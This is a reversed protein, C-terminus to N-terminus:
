AQDLPKIPDSAEFIHSPLLASIRYPISAFFAKVVVDVRVPLEKRDMAM